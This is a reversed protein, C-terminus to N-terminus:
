GCRRHVRAIKNADVSGSNMIADPAWGGYAQVSELHCCCRPRSSLHVHLHFRLYCTRARLHTVTRTQENPAYRHPNPDCVAVFPVERSTFLHDELDAETVVLSVGFQLASLFPSPFSPLTTFHPSRCRFLLSHTNTDTDQPQIARVEKLEHFDTTGLAALFHFRRHVNCCSLTVNCALEGRCAYMHTHTHTHM